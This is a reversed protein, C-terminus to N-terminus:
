EPAGPQGSNRAMDPGDPPAFETIWVDEGLSTQGWLRYGHRTFLKRVGPRALRPNENVNLMGAPQSVPHKFQRLFDRTTDSATIHLYPICDRPRIFLNCSYFRRGDKLRILAVTTVGALEGAPNRILYVAEGSSREADGPNMEVGENKWLDLIESRQAETTRLYVNEFHYDHFYRNWGLAADLTPGRM